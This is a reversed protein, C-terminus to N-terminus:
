IRMGNVEDHWIVNSEPLNHGDRRGLWRGVLATHMKRAAGAEFDFGAFEYETASTLTLGRQEKLFTTVMRQHLWRDELTAHAKLM